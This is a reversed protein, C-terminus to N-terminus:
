LVPIKLQGLRRDCHGAASTATALQQDALLFGGVTAQLYRLFEASNAIVIGWRRM